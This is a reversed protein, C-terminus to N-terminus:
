EQKVGGFGGGETQFNMVQGKFLRSGHQQIQEKYVYTRIDYKFGEHLPAEFYPQAIYDSSLVHEFVKKSMSEGKYCAKSGYSRAPKFFLSKRKAWLLDRDEPRVDLASPICVSLASLEDPTLSYKELFIPNSLEILRQKDALLRYEYPNPTVCVAKNMWAKYLIQTVPTEFQFDCSRNYVLDIAKGDATFLTKLADDWRLTTIDEISASWGCEEFFRQFLFFEFYTRQELPLEDTIVVHRPTESKGALRLESKFMSFLTAVQDDFAATGHYDNLLAVVLAGAANTNIEILRPGAEELYFDYGMFVSRNGPDSVRSLFTNDLAEKAYLPNIRIKELALVCSEIVLRHKKSLQVVHNSCFLPSFSPHRFPESFQPFREFVFEFFNMFQYHGVVFFM